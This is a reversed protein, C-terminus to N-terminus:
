KLEKVLGIKLGYGKLNENIGYQSSYTSLLQYRFEPGIQWRAGNRMKYSLFTEV